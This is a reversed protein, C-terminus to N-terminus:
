FQGQVNVTYYGPAAGLGLQARLNDRQQSLSRIEFAQKRREEKKTSLRAAGFIGFLLGVGAVVGAIRANQRFEHADHGNIKGDENKDLEGRDYYADYDEHQIREAAAFQGLGILGSVLTTGFGLVIMTVPGGIGIKDQRLQALRAETQQLQAYVQDRRAVDPPALSLSPTQGQLPVPMYMYGNPPPPLVYTPAPQAPQAPQAYRPASWAPPPLQYNPPAQYVRGGGPLLPSSYPSFTGPAPAAG